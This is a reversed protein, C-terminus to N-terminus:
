PLRDSFGQDFELKFGAREAKQKAIALARPDPDLGVVDATPNTQKILVPISGTGCGIEIVRNGAEIRAQAVLKRRWTNGGIVCVITDYLPFMWHRGAAPLYSRESHDM